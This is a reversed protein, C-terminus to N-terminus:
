INLREIIKLELKDTKTDYTAFTAKNYIGAAEGPNVLKCEGVMSEWPKHTHGHFVLDYKKTNCLENAETPFHTFAIRKGDIEVEEFENLGEISVDANGRAFKAEGKFTDGIMKITEKSNIDGCHLLLTIEEKNLWNIVNKVNALNDHTDSIIAFKM